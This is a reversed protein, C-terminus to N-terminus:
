NLIINCIRDVDELSLDAYLPLTLINSAIHKAIPTDNSSYKDKYCEFDNTLPYFYKRTFIDHTRLEEFVQDRSKKFGDFLVPMYAYNRKVNDEPIVLKIGEIENFHKEYREVVNKRKEIEQDIIELNCLGMAARFEDMKANGGVYEVTEPSTIGFNKLAELKDKYVANNYTLAGGEITHFVKTAHFSYMSLDGYNGIGKGSIEVGFAHAADYIVKLNHKKAIREIEIVDCPNGYVHVPMIASTRNTILAEIKTVDINFDNNNIDCFVPSLGKRVIAHTTSAFTFPTTIVEGELGLVEIAYELALHGNSYLSIYKSQLYKELSSSLLKHFPGNNTLHGSDFINSLKNIYDEFKPLSSKSVNIPM